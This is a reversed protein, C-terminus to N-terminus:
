LLSCFTECKLPSTRVQLSGLTCCFSTPWVDQICTMLADLVGLCKDELHM